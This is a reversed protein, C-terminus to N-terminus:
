VAKEYSERAIYVRAEFSVEGNPLVGRVDWAGEHRAALLRLTQGDACERKFDIQLQRVFGEGTVQRICRLYHANNMHGNVDIDEAAVTYSGAPTLAELALHGLRMPIPAPEVPMAGIEALGRMPVIRRRSVDALVWLQLARGIERDGSLFSFYRNSATATNGCPWTQVTIRGDIPADLQYWARAVMWVCNHNRLMVERGIGIEEAHESAADQLCAMLTEPSYFGTRTAPIDYEKQLM